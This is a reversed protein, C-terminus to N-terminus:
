HGEMDGACDRVGDQGEKEGDEAAGDERRGDAGVNVGTLACGDIDEEGDIAGPFKVLPPPPTKGRAFTAAPSATSFVTPNMVPMETPPNTNITATVTASQKNTILCLSRYTLTGIAGGSCAMIM